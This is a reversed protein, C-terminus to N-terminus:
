KGDTNKHNHNGAKITNILQNLMELQTQQLELVDQQQRILLHDIKEHLIRVELEAKLNIMYDKKARQRDKAEQRNQSMMIVPAQLAALCSLILNLLIFPYPDFPKNFLWLVNIAMWITIFLFFIFIFTWSGGFSAIRDAMEEGYTLKQHPSEEELKNTLTEDNKLQKLVVKEMETLESLEKSFLTNYYNHRYQDMESIAINCKNTFHPHENRIMALISPRIMKANVKESEPFSKGSIDSIFTQM